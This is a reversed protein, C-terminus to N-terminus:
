AIKAPRVTMIVQDGRRVKWFGTSVDVKYSDANVRGMKQSRIESWKQALTAPNMVRGAEVISELLTFLQWDIPAFISAQKLLQAGFNTLHAINRTETSMECLGDLEVKLQYAILLLILKLVRQETNRDEKWENVSRSCSASQEFSMRQESRSELGYSMDLNDLLDKRRLFDEVTYPPFVVKVEGECEMLCYPLVMQFAILDAMGPYIPLDQYDDTGDEFMMGATILTIARAVALPNYTVASSPLVKSAYEESSDAVLEALISSILQVGEHGLCHTQDTRHLALSVRESLTLSPKALLRLRAVPRITRETASYVLPNLCKLSNKLGGFYASAGRILQQSDASITCKLLHLSPLITESKNTQNSRAVGVRLPAAM